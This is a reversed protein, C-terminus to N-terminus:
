CCVLNRTVAYAVLRAMIQNGDGFRIWAASYVWVTVPYNNLASRSCRLPWGRVATKLSDALMTSARHDTFTYSRRATAIIHRLHDIDPNAVSIGGLPAMAGTTGKPPRGRVVVMHRPSNLTAVIYSLPVLRRIEDAVMPTGLCISLLRRVLPGARLHWGACLSLDMVLVSLSQGATYSFM